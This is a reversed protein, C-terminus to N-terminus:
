RPIYIPIIAPAVTPVKILGKSETVPVGIRKAHEFIKTTADSDYYGGEDIMGSFGILRQPQNFQVQKVRLYTAFSVSSLDDLSIKIIPKYRLSSADWDRIYIKNETLAFTCFRAEAQNSGPTTIQISCRGHQIISEKIDKSVSNVYEARNYYISARDLPTNSCGCLFIFFLLLINDKLRLKKKLIVGIFNLM